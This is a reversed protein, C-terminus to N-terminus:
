GGSGAGACDSASSTQSSSLNQVPREQRAVVCAKVDWGGLQSLLPTIGGYRYKVAVRISSGAEGPAEGNPGRLWQVCVAADHAAFDCGRVYDSASGPAYQAVQSVTDAVVADADDSQVAGFRAGVTAAHNTGNYRGMVLGGDIVAFLIFIFVPFIVAFEM